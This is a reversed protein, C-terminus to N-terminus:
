SIPCNKCSCGMPTKCMKIDFSPNNNIELIWANLNEDILLDFGFIQYPKARYILKTRERQSTDQPNTYHQILNVLMTLTTACANKINEKIINIINPYREGYQILLSKYLSSLTRKSGNNLENIDQINEDSIYNESLKNLSYNTLHM